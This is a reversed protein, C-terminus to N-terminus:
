QLAPLGNSTPLPSSVAVGSPATTAAASTPPVEFGPLAGAGSVPTMEASSVPLGSLPACAAMPGAAMPGAAMPGAAMPGAAMSLMQLQAALLAQNAPTAMMEMSAASLDAASLPVAAAGDGSTAIAATTPSINFQPFAAQLQAM